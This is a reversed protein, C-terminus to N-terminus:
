HTFEMGEAVHAIFYTTINAIIMNLVFIALINKLLGCHLNVRAKIVHAFIALINKLLGCHLDVHAKIVYSRSTKSDQYLRELYLLWDCIREEHPTAYNVM